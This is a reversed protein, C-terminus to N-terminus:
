RSWPPVVGIMRAYAFSQGLHEHLHSVITLLVGRNTTQNGFMKVPRELDRTANVAARVHDFSRRLEAIVDAKRTVTKEADGSMKPAEAGVFTCLFYNGGAVHMFVESVSRVGAAPRWGYKDAPISEALDLLKEQVEDINAVVEATFGQPRPASQTKLPTNQVRAAGLAPLALLIVLSRLVTM